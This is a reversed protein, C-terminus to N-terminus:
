RAIAAAVLEADRAIGRLYPSALSNAYRSGLVYIGPTRRSQCRDAVPWDAADREVLEGLHRTDHTFGTAFVVLDPEITGGDALAVSSAGYSAVEVQHIEGRKIARPIAHGWMVDKPSFTPGFRRGPLHELAWLWYHLDIGLVSQRMARIKSRAAIWAQDDPRRVALWNELIEGASAGCGVVLLRRSSAVHTRRVHLSHMWRLRVRDRDLEAPLRPSGALGTANIVHTAAFAAGNATHVAFGDRERAVSTVAHGTSVDIAHEERFRELAAILEGFTPYRSAPPEMGKLHSLRGPSFLAMAPDIAHLAAIPTAGSELVTCAVGRRKLGAAAALGAPGSGIIIVQKAGSVVRVKRGAEDAPL